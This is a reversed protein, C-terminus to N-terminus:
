RKGRPDGTQEILYHEIRDLRSEMKQTHEYFQQKSVVAEKLFVEMSTLKKDLSEVVVSEAKAALDVRLQQITMFYAAIMGLVMTVVNWVPGSIRFIPADKRNRM